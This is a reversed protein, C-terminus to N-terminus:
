NNILKHCLGQVTAHLLTVPEYRAGYMVCFLAEPILEIGSNRCNFKVLVQKDSFGTIGRKESTEKRSYRYKSKDPQSSRTQGVLM